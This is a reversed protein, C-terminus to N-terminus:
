APGPPTLYVRGLDVDNGSPVTLRLDHWGAGLSILPVRLTRTSAAVGQWAATISTGGSTVTPSPWDNTGGGADVVSFDVFVDPDNAYLTAPM